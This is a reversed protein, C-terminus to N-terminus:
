SREIFRHQEILANETIQFYLREILQNLADGKSSNVAEDPYVIPKLSLQDLTHLAEELEDLREIYVARNTKLATQKLQDFAICYKKNTSYEKNMFVVRAGLFLGELMNVPGFIFATDALSHLVPTYGTLDNFFIVKDQDQIQFLEKPSLQSLFLIKDFNNSLASLFRSRLDESLRSNFHSTLFVKRFGLALFEDLIQFLDLSEDQLDEHKYNLYKEPLYLSLVSNKEFSPFSKKYEDPIGKQSSNAMKLLVMDVIIKDISLYREFDQETVFKVSERIDFVKLPIHVKSSQNFPYLSDYRTNYNRTISKAKPFILKIIKILFVQQIHEGKHFTEQGLYSFDFTLGKGSKYSAKLEKVRPHSLIRKKVDEPIPPKPNTINPWKSYINKKSNSPKKFVQWCGRTEEVPPSLFHVARAYPLNLSLFLFFILLRIKGM